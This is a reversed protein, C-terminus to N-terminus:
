AVHSGQSSEHGCAAYYVARDFFHDVSHFLELEQFLEVTRDAVVEGALFRWLHEKIALIGYILHSLAVGQAARRAGIAKYTQEVDSETKTLLWDSLNRYVEYARQRLEDPPVKRLDSIREDGKLREILSQALQDSHTEILRVLKPAIM